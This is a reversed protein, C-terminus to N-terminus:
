LRDPDDDFVGSSPIMQIPGTHRHAGLNPPPLGEAYMALYDRAKEQEGLQYCAHARAYNVLKSHLFAPLDPIDTPSVLRAPAYAYELVYATGIEPVPYLEISAGFVRGLTGVPGTQGNRHSTFVDDACMQVADDSGLILSRVRVLSPDVDAGEPIEITAATTSATIRHYLNRTRTVIDLYAENLWDDVDSEEVARHTSDRLPAYVRKRLNALDVADPSAQGITVVDGIDGVTLDPM